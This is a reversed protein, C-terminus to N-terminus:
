RSLAFVWMLVEFTLFVCGAQFAWLMRRLKAENVLHNADLRLALERYADSLDSSHETDDIISVIASASFVFRWDTRPWLVAIVVLATAVFAAVALADWVSVDGDSLAVTGFFSTVLSTAGLLIGARSRLGDVLGAQHTIARVAENYALEEPVAAM